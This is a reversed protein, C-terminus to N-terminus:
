LIQLPDVALIVIISVIGIALIVDFLFRVIHRNMNSHNGRQSNREQALTIQEVM